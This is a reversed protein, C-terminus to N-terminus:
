GDAVEPQGRQLVPVEGLPEVVQAFLCVRFGIEGDGEGQEFEVKSAPPRTEEAALLLVQGPKCRRGRLAHGIRRSIFGRELRDVPEFDLAIECLFFIHVNDGPRPTLCSLFCVVRKVIVQLRTTISTRSTVVILSGEKAAIGVVVIVINM